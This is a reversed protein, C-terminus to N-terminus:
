KVLLDMVPINLAQAIQRVMEESVNVTKNLWRDLSRVNALGIRRAFAAKNGRSEQQILVELERAWADRDVVALSYAVHTDRSVSAGTGFRYPGVPGSLRGLHARRQQKRLTSASMLM